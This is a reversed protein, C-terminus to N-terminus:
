PSSSVAELNQPVALLTFYNARKWGIAFQSIAFVENDGGAPDSLFIQKHQLDYGTVLAYHSLKGDASAVMVIVPRQLVLNRYLGTLKWDLTGKFIATYYGSARLVVEITAGTIGNNQGADIKLLKYQSPDLKLHYYGTIMDIIAM